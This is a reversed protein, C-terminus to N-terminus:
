RLTATQCFLTAKGMALSWDLEVETVAGNERRSVVTGPGMSTEVRQGGSSTTKKKKSEKSEKGEKTAAASVITLQDVKFSQLAEAKSLMNASRESLYKVILTKDQKKYKDSVVNIAHLASYDVLDSGDRDFHLEVRDPDEKYHFLKVFRQTSAFFVPGHVTYIKCAGNETIKESVNFREGMDWAYALATVAVGAAVAVFLDQIITVVWVIVIVFADTRRIKRKSSLSPYKAAANIWSPHHRCSMPLLALIVLWISAWDMTAIIVAVMLGVLSSVPIISIFPGAVLVFLFLTFGAVLGSIRFRGNAGAEIALVSMPINAGGGMTGFLAGVANGLSLAYLYQNPAENETETRDNVEEMTMVAEVAGAGAAIFGKQQQQQQQQQQQFPFLLLLLLLLFIM